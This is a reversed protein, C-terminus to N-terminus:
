KRIDIARSMNWAKKMSVFFLVPLLSIYMKIGSKGCRALWAKKLQKWLNSIMPIFNMFMFLMESLANEKKLHFIIRIRMEIRSIGERLELSTSTKYLLSATQMVATLKILFFVTEKQNNWSFSSLLTNIISENNKFDLSIIQFFFLLIAYYFIPKIDTFQESISVNIMLCLLILLFVMCVAFQYPLLLIMISVAPIFLLKIWSPCKHLFSNGKKYSFLSYKQKM